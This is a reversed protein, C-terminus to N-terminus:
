SQSGKPNVPQIEKCDLPSELTKELVVSLLVLEEASVEKITWSECGYMVVPFILKLYVSSQQCITDKSKLVRDLNLNTVAKLSCTDKLKMAATSKSGLFVSDTVAEVKEREIQWSTFPGSVMVKTKENNLKLGSKETYDKVKKM